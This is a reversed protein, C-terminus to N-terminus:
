GVNPHPYSSSVNRVRVSLCYTGGFRRNIGDINGSTYVWFILMQLEVGVGGWNFGRIEVIVFM